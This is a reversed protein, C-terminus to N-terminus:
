KRLENTMIEGRYTHESLEERTKNHANPGYIPMGHVNKAWVWKDPDWGKFGLFERIMNFSYFNITFVDGNSMTLEFTGDQDYINAVGDFTGFKDTTKTTTSSAVLSSIEEPNLIIFTKDAKQIEMLM